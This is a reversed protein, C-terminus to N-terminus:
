MLPSPRQHMITENSSLHEMSTKAQREQKILFLIIKKKKKFVGIYM